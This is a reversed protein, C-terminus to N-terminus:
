HIHLNKVSPPLKNEFAAVRLNVPVAFILESVFFAGVSNIKVDAANIGAAEFPDFAEGQFSKHLKHVAGILPVRM